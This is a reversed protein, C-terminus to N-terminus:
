FIIMIKKYISIKSDVVLLMGIGKDAALAYENLEQTTLTINNTQTSENMNGTNINSILIASNDHSSILHDTPNELSM